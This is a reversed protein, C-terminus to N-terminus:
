GRHSDRPGRESSDDRPRFEYVNNSNTRELIIDVTETPEPGSGSFWGTFVVALLALFTAVYPFLYPLGAQHDIIILVLFFVAVWLLHLWKIRKLRQQWPLPQRKAPVLAVECFPCILNRKDDLWNDCKAESERFVKHCHACQYSM